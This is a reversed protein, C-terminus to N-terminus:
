LELPAFVVVDLAGRSGQLVHTSRCSPAGILVHVFEDGITEVPSSVHVRHDDLLPHDGLENVNRGCHDIATALKLTDGRGLQSFVEGRYLLHITCAM